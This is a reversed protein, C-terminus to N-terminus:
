GDITVTVKEVQNPFPPIIIIEYEGARVFELETPDADTELSVANAIVRSHPPLSPFTISFGEVSHSTDITPRDVFAGDKIYHTNAHIEETEEADLVMTNNKVNVKTAEVSAQSSTMIQTIQGSDMYEVLSKM